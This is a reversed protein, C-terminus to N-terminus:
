AGLHRRSLRWPTVVARRPIRQPWFSCRHPPSYLNFLSLCLPPLVTASRCFVGVRRLARDLQSAARPLANMGFNEVIHRHGLATNDLMDVFTPNAEDHMSWGGNLFTLQGSAVLGKVATQTDSDQTEFWIQFFAQEVKSFPPPSPTSNNCRPHVIGRRGEGVIFAARQRVYVFRRSANALLGATVARLIQSVNRGGIPGNGNYYQSLTHPHFAVWHHVFFCQSM